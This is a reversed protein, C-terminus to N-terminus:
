VVVEVHHEGTRLDPLLPGTIPRGDLHLSCVGRGRLATNDIAIHYTAGRFHRTLQARPLARPLCPDILLGDYHRRAGLIWEVIVMSFWCATGTRWAYQSRGYNEPTRDYWTTFSFPDAQSVDLPLWPRDPVTKLVTRWAEEARGLMCDAVAKFGAAHCYCGGNTAYHPRMASKKGIREDFHSYPPEVLSFGADFECLRDVAEMCRRARDGPATRSLVAWPQCYMFIRGEAATHTGATYGSATITRAYWDGDWAVENLRRSFETHIGRAEAALAADGRRDALTAIELLGLCFQQTVMVSERPGAKESPELGDDWDAFRQDCLGNAGTQAALFRMARVLHDWVPASEGSKAFPVPEDLLAFDGSEQIIWPLCHLVWCPQDAYPLPNLPRFGHPVDGSPLQSALARLLNARVLPYDCLALGMDNQLNDRFGSKNILYSVMQKKAFHNVLGDVHAHGTSITFRAARANETAIQEACAADLSAPTTRARVALADALGSTQGLLFDIRGPARPALALRVQVIGACDPGCGPRNDCNWGHLLRPTSLSFDGHTFHDRYGSAGACDALTLLYGKFRDTALRHRNAVVVGGLEPHIASSNDKFVSKGEATKGTLAFLAFAFVSVRRPRDTLNELTLTWAEFMETRPVFVRHQARLGLAAGATTTHAAHYTTARATVDRLVPAGGPCFAENTEDDRLALYKHAYTVLVCTNGARDRATTQGDGLSTIESYLEDDGPANYHVNVWKRPPEGTLVFSGTAPEYRGYRALTTGGRPDAGVPLSASPM